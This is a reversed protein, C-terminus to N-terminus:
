VANYKSYRTLFHTTHLLIDLEAVVATTIGDLKYGLTKHHTVHHYIAVYSTFHRIQRKFYEM